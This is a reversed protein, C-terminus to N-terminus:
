VGKRFDEWKSLLKHRRLIERLYEEKFTGLAVFQELRAFDKRRGTKMAIAMLHEQTMVWTKIGDMEVEVPSLLAEHYLPEDAPLFEVPWAEIELHQGKFEYGLGKLYDYIPELTVILRGPPPTVSVFVDIDETSIAEVYYIAGVAGGIAYRAIVGDRQMKNIVELTAKMETPMTARCDLCGLGFLLVM